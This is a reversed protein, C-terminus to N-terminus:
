WEEKGARDYFEETAKYDSPMASVLQNIDFNKKQKVPEIIIKQNEVLVNVKDGIMLHMNEMINKPLRIGQSNGWNSITATM